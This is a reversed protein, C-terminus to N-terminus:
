RFCVDFLGPRGRGMPASLKPVHTDTFISGVSKAPEHLSAFVYIVFSTGFHDHRWWAIKKMRIAWAFFLVALGVILLAEWFGYRATLSFNNVGWYSRNQPSPNLINDMWQSILPPDGIFNIPIVLLGAVLAIQITEKWKKFNKLVLYLILLATCQPKLLMVAIALGRGVAGFKKNELYEWLVLPLVIALIDMASKNMTVLFYPGLVVMFFNKFPWARKYALLGITMVSLVRAGYAQILYYPVLLILGWPPYVFNRNSLYTHPIDSWFGHTNLYWDIPYSQPMWIYLIAVLGILGM